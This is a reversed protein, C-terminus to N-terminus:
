SKKGYLYADHDAALDAPAPGAYTADDSYLPVVDETDRNLTERLSERILEDLSIGLKGALRHARHKLHAQLMITTREM